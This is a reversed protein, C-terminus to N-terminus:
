INAQLPKAAPQVMANMYKILENKPYRKRKGIGLAPIKTSHVRQFKDKSVDLFAAADDAVLFETELETNM